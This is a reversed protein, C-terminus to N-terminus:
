LGQVDDVCARTELLLQLKRVVPDHERQQLLRAEVIGISDHRPLNSVVCLPVEHARCPHVLGLTLHKLVCRWMAQLAASSLMVHGAAACVRISSSYTLLDPQPGNKLMEVLLGM